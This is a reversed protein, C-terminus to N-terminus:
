LGKKQEGEECTSMEHGRTHDELYKAMQGMAQMGISDGSGM